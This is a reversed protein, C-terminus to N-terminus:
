IVVIPGRYTQVFAQIQLTHLISFGWMRVQKIDNQTHQSQPTMPVSLIYAM